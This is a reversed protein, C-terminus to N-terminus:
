LSRKSYFEARYKTCARSDKIPKALLFFLFFLDGRLGAPCAGTIRRPLSCLNNTEASLHFASLGTVTPYHIHHILDASAAHFLDEKADM